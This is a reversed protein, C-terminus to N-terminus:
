LTSLPDYHQSQNAQKSKIVQSSPLEGAMDWQWCVVGQQLLGLTRWFDCACASKCPVSIHMCHVHVYICIHLSSASLLLLCSSFFADAGWERRIRWGVLNFGQSINSDPLVRWMAAVFLELYFNGNDVGSSHAALACLGFGPGTLM